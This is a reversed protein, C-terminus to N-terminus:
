IGKKSELLEKICKLFREPSICGGIRGFSFSTGEYEGLLHNKETFDDVERPTLGIENIANIIGNIQKKSPGYASINEGLSLIHEIRRIQDPSYDSPMSQLCELCNNSDTFDVAKKLIEMKEEITKM